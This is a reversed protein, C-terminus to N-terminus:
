QSLGVAKMADEVTKVIKLDWGQKILDKQHPTLRGTKSKCDLMYLNSGRRCLLDFSELRMVHVGFRELAKFIEQESADRKQAYGRSVAM